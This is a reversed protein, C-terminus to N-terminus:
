RHPVGLPGSIEIAALYNVRDGPTVLWQVSPSWNASRQFGTPKKAWGQESTDAAWYFTELRWGNLLAIRYADLGTDNNAASANVHTGLLARHAAVLDSPGDGFDSLEDDDDAVRNCRDYNSDDGCSLVQVDDMALTRLDLAPTFTVSRWDRRGGSTTLSLPGSQHRVGFINTPWKVAVLTNTWEIVELTAQVSSGSWTNLAGVVSGPKSGFNQGVLALLGGPTNFGFLSTIEPKPYSLKPREGCGVRACLQLLYSSEKVQVTHAARGSCSGQGIATVTKTGPTTWTFQTSFPLHGIQTTPTIGQNGFGIIVARCPNKGTVTVTSPENVIPSSPTVQIGQVQARIVATPCLPAVLLVMVIARTM